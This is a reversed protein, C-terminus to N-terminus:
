EETCQPIHKNTSVYKASVWGGNAGNGVNYWTKNGSISQSSVKCWVDVAKGKGISGIAKDKTTPAQRLTLSATSKANRDAANHMATCAVPMNGIAKVYKASVWAQRNALKYWFSNGGVNTGYLNCDITIKTGHKLAAGASPAHTSPATHVSLSTAATVQGKTDLGHYGSASAHPAFGIVSGAAAAVMASAAAVRALKTHSM